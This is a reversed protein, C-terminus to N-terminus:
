EIQFHKVGLKQNKPDQSFHKKFDPWVTIKMNM